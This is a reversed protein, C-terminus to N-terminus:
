IRTWLAFLRVSNTPNPGSANWETPLSSGPEYTAAGQQAQGSGAPTNANTWGSLRFGPPTCPATTALAGTEDARDFQVETSRESEQGINEGNRECLDQMGVNADYTVTIQPSRAVATFVQSDVVRVERGPRFAWTQGPISWGVLSTGEPTCAVTSPPLTFMENRTVTVDSLCKGGDSTLFQFTYDPEPVQSQTAASGSPSFTLTLLASASTSYWNIWGLTPDDVFRRGEGGCANGFHAYYQADSTTGYPDSASGFLVAYENGSEVQVGTFAGSSLQNIDLSSGSPMGDPDLATQGLVTLEALPTKPHNGLAVFSAPVVRVILDEDPADNKSVALDISDLTGTIPATFISALDYVDTRSGSTSSTCSLTSLTVTEAHAPSSTAVLGAAALTSGLLAILMNRITCGTTMVAVYALM